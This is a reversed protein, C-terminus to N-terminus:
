TLDAYKMGGADISSKMWKVAQCQIQMQRQRILKPDVGGPAKPDHVPGSDAPPMLSLRINPQALKPNVSLTSEMDNFVPKDKALVRGKKPHCLPMLHKKLCEKSISTKEAIDGLKIVEDKNFLCLAAAQQVNVVLIYKKAAYCTQM